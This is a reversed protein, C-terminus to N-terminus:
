AAKAIKHALEDSVAATGGHVYVKIAARKALYDSQEEILDDSVLLIPAGKQAALVGGALADPFDKGTATCISNSTLVDAFTYNVALNTLYRNRGAVRTLTENTELGTADAANQMVADSIVGDGGIVYANKVSGKVSDLYQQTAADIRGNTPLYLVPANKRAAVASVSLADPYDGAYVFFVEAPKDNVRKAIEAATGFRTAGAIRETTIDNDRLISEVQVSVAGTGGLIVAKKAGLKEIANTTERPISDKATLLIPADLKDALAVGALADAFTQANAIVVTQTGDPYAKKATEAATGYRNTGAARIFPEYNLGFGCPFLIKDTYHSGEDM